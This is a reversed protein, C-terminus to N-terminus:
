RKTRKKGEASLAMKPNRKLTKIHEVRRFRLASWDEDIAVMRVGEFGAKGISEWGRDRDFDCEYKKSSKKPYAFWVVPDEGKTGKLNKAAKEIQKQTTVFCITFSVKSAATFRSRVSVNKLQKLEKEFSEPANVIHIPSQGKLNLKKWLGTM